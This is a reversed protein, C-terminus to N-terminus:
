MTGLSVKLGQKLTAILSNEILAVNAKKPKNGFVGGNPHYISGYKQFNAKKVELFELESIKEM